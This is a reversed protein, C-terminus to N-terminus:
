KLPGDSMTEMERELAESSSIKLTSVSMPLPSSCPMLSVPDRRVMPERFRVCSEGSGAVPSDPVTLLRQSGFINNDEEQEVKRAQSIAGDCVNM